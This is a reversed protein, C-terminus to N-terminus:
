DLSGAWGSVDSEIDREGGSQAVSDLWVELQRGANLAEAGDVLAFHVVDGPIRQAAHGVDAGIVCALVPYGGTVPRDALMLIPRGDPPLQIAGLPLGLSPVEGTGAPLRAVAELRLGARDSAPAVTWTGACLADLAGRGVREAHPGPLVRLTPPEGRDPRKPALRLPPTPRLAPAILMRDGRRLARGDLGGFGTRLDTSRSGLVEPVELGGAVAIYARAGSRRTGFTLKGGAPVAVSRGPPLHQGNLRADLDAGTLALVSPQEFGLSPGSLTAELVAADDLNGVLRNALRAAPGDAAGGVPVGYRRWGIRGAADQVSTLTGPELVEIM